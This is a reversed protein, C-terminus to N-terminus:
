LQGSGKTRLKDLLKQKEDSLPFGAKEARVAHERALGYSGQALYVEAMGRNAPGSGPDVSLCRKLARAAAEFQRQALKLLGTELQLDFETRQADVLTTARQPNVIKLQAESKALAGTLRFAKALQLRLDPRAPDIHTGQSLIEVADSKRDADLYAMGLSLYADAVKAGSKVVQELEAIAEDRRDLDWYTLGLYYRAQAFSEDAKLAQRLLELARMRNKLQRETDGLVALVQPNGPVQELAADLEKKAADLRGLDRYV